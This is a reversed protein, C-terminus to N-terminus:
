INAGERLKDFNYDHWTRVIAAQGKMRVPLASGDTMTAVGGSIDRIYDMNVMIGKNIMLFERSQELKSQMEALTMRVREEKKDSTRINLYHGDTEISIIDGVSLMITQKGSKLTISRPIAVTSMLDNLVRQLETQLDRKMIYAYAHVSFADPMHDSSDTLFIVFAQRDKERLARIADVGTMQQAREKPTGVDTVPDPNSEAGKAAAAKKQKEEAMAADALPMRTFYIDMVVLSYNGDHLSDIFAQPTYFLSYEAPIGNQDTFAKMMEHVKTVVNRDDDAIAIRM